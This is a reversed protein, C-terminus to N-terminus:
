EVQFKQQIAALLKDKNVGVHIHAKKGDKFFLFSPLSSVEYKDAIEEHEDFDINYFNVTTYKAALEKIYPAIQKCPGCWTAKFAIVVNPHQIATDFDKETLLDVIKGANAGQPAAAAAATTPAATSAAATEPVATTAAAAGGQSAKTWGEIEYIEELAARVKDVNAGVVVKKLSGGLYVHTTPMSQINEVEPEEDLEDCDITYAKFKNFEELVPPLKGKM